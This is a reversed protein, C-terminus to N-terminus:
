KKLKKILRRFFEKILVKFPTEETTLNAAPIYSYSMPDKFYIRNFGACNYKEKMLDDQYPIKFEDKNQKQFVVYININEVKSLNISNFVPETMPVHYMHLSGNKTKTGTIIVYSGFVIKYNNAAAMGEFFARDFMFYGNGKIVQQEIIIYGGPKALNHVTKYCESINFIHECSGHDTVIDFQNFKFSDDFPKNLDHVIAGHEGNIDICQYNSIGLSEYFHKASCRPRDPFNNVNPYEEVLSGKLGAYEFLEKLDNKKIILEQSGIEIISNAKKLYGLNYLELTNQVASISIGM